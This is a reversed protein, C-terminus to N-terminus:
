EQESEFGKWINFDKGFLRDLSISFYVNQEYVTNKKQM